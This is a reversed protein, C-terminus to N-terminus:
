VGGQARGVGKSARSDGGGAADWLGGAGEEGRNGRVAEWTFGQKGQELVPTARGSSESQGAAQRSASQVASTM